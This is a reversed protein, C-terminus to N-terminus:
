IERIIEKIRTVKAKSKPLTYTRKTWVIDLSMIVGGYILIDLFYLFTKM